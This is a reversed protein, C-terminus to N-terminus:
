RLVADVNGLFLIKKITFPRNKIGFVKYICNINSAQRTWPVGSDKVISNDKAELFKPIQFSTKKEYALMAALCWKDVAENWNLPDM